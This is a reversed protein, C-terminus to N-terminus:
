LIERIYVAAHPVETSSTFRKGTISLCVQVDDKWIYKKRTVIDWVAKEYNDIDGKPWKTSVTKYPPLVLDLAIACRLGAIIPELKPIHPAVRGRWTVYPKGTYLTGDRTFKPRPAPMPQVPLIFSVARYTGDDELIHNLAEVLEEFSPSTM